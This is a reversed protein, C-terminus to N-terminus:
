SDDGAIVNNRFSKADKKRKEKKILPLLDSEKAIWNEPLFRGLKKRKGKIHLESRPIQGIIWIDKLDKSVYCLIYTNIHEFDRKVEARLFPDDFYSTSKVAINGYVPCVLDVGDDGKNHFIRSSIEVGLYYAVAAEAIIGMNHSDQATMTDNYTKGGFRKEKKNRQKALDLAYERQKKPLRIKIRNLM